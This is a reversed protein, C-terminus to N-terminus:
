FSCFLWSCTKTLSFQLDHDKHPVAHSLTCIYATQDYRRHNSRAAYVYDVFNNRLCTWHDRRFRVMVVLAHMLICSGRKCSCSNVHVLQVCQCVRRDKFGMPRVTASISISSPLYLSLEPCPKRRFLVSPVLQLGRSVIRRLVLLLTRAIM